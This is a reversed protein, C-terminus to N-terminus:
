SRVGFSKKWRLKEEPHDDIVLIKARKKAVELPLPKSVDALKLKRWFAM